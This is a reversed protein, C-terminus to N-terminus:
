GKWVRMSYLHDNWPDEVFYRDGYRVPSATGGYYSLYYYRQADCENFYYYSSIGAVNLNMAILDSMGYGTSDCPGDNGWVSDHYGIWGADEFFTILAVASTPAALIPSNKDPSCERSVVFTEKTLPDRDLVTTCYQKQAPEPVPGSSPPAASAVGVVSLALSVISVVGTLLFLFSSKRM